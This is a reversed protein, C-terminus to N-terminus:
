MSDTTIDLIFITDDVDLDLEVAPNSSRYEEVVMAMM